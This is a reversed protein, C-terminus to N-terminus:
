DTFRGIVKMFQEPKLMFIQTSVRPDDAAGSNIKVFKEFKKKFHKSQKENMRLNLPCGDRWDSCDFEYVFDDIELRCEDDDNRTIFDKNFRIGTSSGPFQLGCNCGQIDNGNQYLYFETLVQANVIADPTVNYYHLTYYSCGYGRTVGGPDVLVDVVRNIEEARHPTYVEKSGKEYDKAILGIAQLVTLTVTILEGRANINVLEM